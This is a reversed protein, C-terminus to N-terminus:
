IGLLDKIKKLNEPNSLISSLEKENKVREEYDKENFDEEKIDEKSASAWPEPIEEWADDLKELYGSIEFNENYVFPGVSRVDEGKKYTYIKAM